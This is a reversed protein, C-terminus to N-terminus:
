FLLSVAAMLIRTYRGFSDVELMGFLVGNATPQALQLAGYIGAAVIGVVTITFTSHKWRRDLFLGCAISALFTVALVMEPLLSPLGALIHDLKNSIDPIFKDM